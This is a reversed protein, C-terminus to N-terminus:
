VHHWGFFHLSGVISTTWIHEEGYGAPNDHNTHLQSADLVMEFEMSQAHVSIQSAGHWGMTEKNESLPPLKRTIIVDNTTTSNPNRTPLVIQPSKSSIELVVRAWLRRTDSHDILLLSSVVLHAPKQDGARPSHVIDFSLIKSESNAPTESM